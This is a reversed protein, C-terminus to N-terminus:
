IRDEPILELFQVIEPTLVADDELVLAYEEESNILRKYVNRHSWACGMETPSLRRKDTYDFGQDNCNAKITADSLELGDVAEVFEAELGLRALQAEM